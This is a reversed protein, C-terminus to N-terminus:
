TGAAMRASSRKPRLAAKGGALAEAVNRDDQDLEARTLGRQDPRDAPACRSGGNPAFGPHQAPETPTQTTTVSFEV